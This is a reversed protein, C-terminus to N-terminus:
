TLWDLVKLDPVKEYDKLNRSLLTANRALAICAIKLGMTGVRIKAAKLENFIAASEPTWDFVEWSAFFRFLQGLQRYARVQQTPNSTRRIAAMWGRMLEEVSIISTSYSEGSAVLPEMLRRAETSTGRQYEVLHDTDLILM